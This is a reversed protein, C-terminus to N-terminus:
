EGTEKEEPPLPPGAYLPVIRAPYGNDGQAVVEERAEKESPWLMGQHDFVNVWHGSHDIREVMWAVPEGRRALAAAAWVLPTLKSAVASTTVRLPGTRRYTAELDALELHLKAADAEVAGEPQPRAADLRALLRVAQEGWTLDLAGGGRLALEAALIGVRADRESVPCERADPM